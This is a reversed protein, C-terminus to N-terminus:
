KEELNIIKCAVANHFMQFQHFILKEYNELHFQIMCLELKMIMFQFNELKSM